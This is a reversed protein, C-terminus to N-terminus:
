TEKRPLGGLRRIEAAARALTTPNLLPMIRLDLPLLIEFARKGGDGEVRMTEQGQHAVGQRVSLPGGPFAVLADEIEALLKKDPELPADPVLGTGGCRCKVGEGANISPDSFRVGTGGCKECEAM